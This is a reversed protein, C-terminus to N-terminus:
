DEMTQEEEETVPHLSYVGKKSPLPYILKKSIMRYLKAGLKQRELIEGTKRYVQIMIKDISAIGGLEDMVEMLLFDQKDSESINLEAILEPPLGILDNPTIYISSASSKDKCNEKLFQNLSLYVQYRKLCSDSRILDGQQEFHKGRELQYFAQENVFDKFYDLSNMVIEPLLLFRSLRLQKFIRLKM